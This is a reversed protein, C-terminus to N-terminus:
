ENELFAYHFEQLQKLENYLEQIEDQISFPDSQQYSHLMIQNANIQKVNELTINLKEIREMILEKLYPFSYKTEILHEEVQNISSLSKMLDNRQEIKKAYKFKDIIAQRTNKLRLAYNDLISSVLPLNPFVTHDFYYIIETNNGIDDQEEKKEEFMDMNASETPNLEQQLEQITMNLWEKIVPVLKENPLTLLEEKFEKPFYQYVTKSSLFTIGDTNIKNTFKTSTNMLKLLKQFKSEIDQLNQKETETLQNHHYLHLPENNKLLEIEMKYRKRIKNEVHEDLPTNTKYNMISDNEVLQQLLRQIELCYFNDDMKVVVINPKAMEWYPNDCIKPTNRLKHEINIDKPKQTKIQNEIDVIYEQEEDEKMVPNEFLEPFFEPIDMQYLQIPKYVKNYFKSHFTKCHQGIPHEEDLFVNLRKLVQLYQKKNLESHLYKNYDKAKEKDKMIQGLKKM